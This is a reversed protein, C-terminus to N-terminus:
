VRTKKAMIEDHIKTGTNNFGLGNYANYLSEMEEQYRIPVEDADRYTEYIVFMDNRLLAGLADHEAKSNERMKKFQSVVYALVMTVVAGYIPSIFQWVNSWNM